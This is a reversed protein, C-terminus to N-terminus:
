VAPLLPSVVQVLDLEQHQLALVLVLEQVLELV